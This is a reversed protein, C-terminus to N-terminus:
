NVQIILYCYASDLRLLSLNILDQEVWHGLFITSFRRLIFKTVKALKLWLYFDVWDPEPFTIYEYHAINIRLELDVRLAYQFISLNPLSVLDLRPKTILGCCRYVRFLCVLLFELLVPLAVQM